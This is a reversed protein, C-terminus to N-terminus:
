AKKARTKPTAGPLVSPEGKFGPFRSPPLKRIVGKSQLVEDDALRLQVPPAQKEAKLHRAGWGFFASPGHLGCAKWDPREGADFRARAERYYGDAELPKTDATRVWAKVLDDITM